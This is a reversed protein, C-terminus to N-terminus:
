EVWPLPETTRGDDPVSVWHFRRYVEISAAPSMRYIHRSLQRENRRNTDDILISTGPRQLSWGLQLAGHRRREQQWNPPGDVLVITPALNRVYQPIAYQGAGTLPVHILEVSSALGLAELRRLILSLYSEDHEVAVLREGLGRRHLLCAMALTSAGAGLELYRVREAWHATFLLRALADPAVAFGGLPGVAAWEAPTLM